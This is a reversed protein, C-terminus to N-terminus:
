VDEKPVETGTRLDDVMPRSNLTQLALARTWGELGPIRDSVDPHRACYMMYGGSLNMAKFGNLELIRCAIYSRFGTLCYVLLTKDKPVENLHKRLDDVHIHIAGQIAGQEFEERTRVDLLMGGQRVLLDIEDVHFIEVDGKLINEAVYGAINIADKASGYAPAYALEVQSLDSVTLGARMATALVDIRKDVGDVGVIQAGLVKGGDPSFLLKIVMPTAGPFYGAHSAPLTYSKTYPLSNRRLTKENAGTCAVTFDFVRVVSTSQSSAYVSKRGCVNDAAVRGQRNAPGALPVSTPSGTVVDIVEIADGVAYIDPDSTQLYENVRIGGLAGIALGSEKALKVEPRVGVSMIVLDCEICNGTGLVVQIRDNSLAEFREVGNNLVLEIGKLELHQHIFEAMEKDLPPMVQDMMEVLVVHLHMHSLTEAMELGIFGGGVVVAQRPGNENIFTKMRDADALSRLSFVRDDDIGPLPPLLPNAGPSLILKDYRQRYAKGYEKDWAEVTKSARDISLAETNVRVDINFRNRFSEPTQVLLKARDAIEGSMYYALGCTAQSVHQDRELLVISATEDLRRARAAASAGGAVGGVIVITKM